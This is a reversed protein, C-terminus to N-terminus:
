NSSLKDHVKRSITTQTKKLPKCFHQKGKSPPMPYCDTYLLFSNGHNNVTFLFGCFWKLSTVLCNNVGIADGDKSGPNKIFFNKLYVM